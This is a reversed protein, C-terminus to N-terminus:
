MQVLISRENFPLASKCQVVNYVKLVNNKLNCDAMHSPCNVETGSVKKLADM